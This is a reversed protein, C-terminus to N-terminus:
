VGPEGDDSERDLHCRVAGSSDTQYREESVEVQSTTDKYFGLQQYSGGTFWRLDSFSVISEPNHNKIFHQFLKSMMGPYMAGNTAFRKLEWEYSSTQRTPQGFVMVGVLDDNHYAGLHVSGMASGQIHYVNLFASSYSPAIQKVVLHRAGVGAPAKDLRTRLITKVVEPRDLWEDEFITILDVGRDALTQQKDQHYDQGKGYREGHWYLGCYEVALSKDPVYLDVEKPPILTRTNRIVEYGLTEIFDGIDTEGKSVMGVCKPCGCGRAHAKPTQQFEGHQECIITIPKETHAYVVQDYGYRTGHADKFKQLIEDPTFTRAASMRMSGCKPCGHGNKHVAYAQEFPGHEPCLITSLTNAGTYVFESYDYRDGHVARFEDTPDFGILQRESSLGCIRCGRGKLHNDPLMEFAGHIRCNITVKSRNTTYVTPTYDYRLGHVTRFEEIAQEPSKRRKQGKEIKGCEPCGSGRIHIAPTQEFPGHEHCLVTVKTHSGNFVVQSYDYRDGHRKRFRGIVDTTPSSKQGKPVSEFELYLYIHLWGRPIL